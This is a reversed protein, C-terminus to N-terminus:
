PKSSKKSIELISSIMSPDSPSGKRTPLFQQPVSLPRNTTTIYKQFSQISNSNFIKNLDSHHNPNGPGVKFGVGVPIGESIKKFHKKKFQNNTNWINVYVDGTQGQEHQNDDDNESNINVLASIIERNLSEKEELIQLTKNLREYLKDFRKEKLYNDFKASLKETMKKNTETEVQNTVNKNESNLKWLQPYSSPTESSRRHIVKKSKSSPSLNYSFDDAKLTKDNGMKAIRSLGDQMASFTKPSQRYKHNSIEDERKAIEKGESNDKNLTQINNKVFSQVTEDKSRRVKSNQGSDHYLKTPQLLLSLAALFKRRTVGSARKEHLHNRLSSSLLKTVKNKLNNENPKPNFIDKDNKVELTPMVFPSSWIYSGGNKFYNKERGVGGQINQYSGHNFCSPKPTPIRNTIKHPKKNELSNKKQNPTTEPLWNVRKYHIQESDSVSDTKIYKLFSSGQIEHNNELAERPFIDKYSSLKAKLADVDITPRSFGLYSTPPEKNITQDSPKITKCEVNLFLQLMLIITVNMKGCSVYIFYYIMVKESVRDFSGM